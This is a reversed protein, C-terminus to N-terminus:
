YYPLAQFNDQHYNEEKRRTIETKPFKEKDEEERQKTTEYL